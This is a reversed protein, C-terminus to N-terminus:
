SDLQSNMSWNMCRCLSVEAAFWDGYYIEIELEDGDLHLSM